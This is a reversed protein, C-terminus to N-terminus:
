SAFRGIDLYPRRLFLPEHNLDAIFASPYWQLLADGQGKSRVLPHSKAPHPLSHPLKPASEFNLRILVACCDCRGKGKNVGDRGDSSELNFCLPRENLIESSDFCM